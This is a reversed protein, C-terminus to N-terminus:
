LQAHESKELGGRLTRFHRWISVICEHRAVWPYTAIDAITYANGSIYEAKGLRENMVGYLRVVEKGYREIGYPVVEKAAHMFHHAQGFSPGVGGMQFM